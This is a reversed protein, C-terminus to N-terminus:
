LSNKFWVRTLIQCGVDINGHKSRISSKFGKYTKSALIDRKMRIACDRNPASFSNSAWISGVNAWHSKKSALGSASWDKM